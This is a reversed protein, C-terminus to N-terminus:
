RRDCAAPAGSPLWPPRWHLRRAGAQPARWPCGKTVLILLAPLQLDHPCLSHLVAKGTHSQSAIKAEERCYLLLGIIGKGSLLNLGQDLPIELGLAGLLAAPVTDNSVEPQHCSGNSYAQNCVISPDPECVAFLAAISCWVGSNMDASCPWGADGGTASLRMM